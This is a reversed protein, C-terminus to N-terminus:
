KWIQSHHYQLWFLHYLQYYPYQLSGGTDFPPQHIKNHIQHIRNHIKGSMILITKNSPKLIYPPDLSCHQFTLCAPNRFMNKWIELQNKQHCGPTYATYSPHRKMNTNCAVSGAQPASLNWQTWPRPHLIRWYRSTSQIQCKSNKTQSSFLKWAHDNPLLTKSNNLDVVLFGPSVYIVAPTMSWNLFNNLGNTAISSVVLMEQSWKCPPESPPGFSSPDTGNWHRISHSTTKFSISIPWYRNYSVMKLPILM